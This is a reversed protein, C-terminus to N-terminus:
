VKQLAPYYEWLDDPEEFLIDSMDKRSLRAILAMRIRDSCNPSGTHFLRGHWFCVTGAPGTIETCDGLDMGVGGKISLLSHDKFHECARIHSGPWVTFGGGRHVVEDVYITAAISFRGVTGEPVGNTPTYYGDLHGHPPPSWDSEGSPYRLHPGPGGQNLLGKGVLEEATEFNPTDFMTARIAPHSGPVPVMPGANIWSEPDDRDAEIGSWLADQAADIQEQTLTDHKVLYGNAKFFSKDEDSLHPM